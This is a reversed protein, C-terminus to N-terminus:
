WSIIPLTLDVNLFLIYMIRRLKSFKINGLMRKKIEMKSSELEREKEAIVMQRLSSKEQDYERMEVSNINQKNFENECKNLLSRKFTKYPANKKAETESSFTAVSLQQGCEAAKSTPFFVTYYKGDFPSCMIKIFMGRQILLRHLSLEMNGRIKPEIYDDLFVADICQQDNDFPGVIEADNTIVKNSWRYSVRGSGEVSNDDKAGSMVLPDEDSEVIKISGRISLLLKRCLQAHVDSFLPESIAKEHVMSVVMTLVDNSLMLIDLIQAFLKDLNGKSLKNLLSKVQREVQALDPHAEHFHDPRPSTCLYVRGTSVLFLMEDPRM